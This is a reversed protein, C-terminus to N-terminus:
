RCPSSSYGLTNPATTSTRPECGLVAVLRIPVTNTSLLRDTYLPDHPYAPSSAKFSLLRSLTALRRTSIPPEFSQEVM